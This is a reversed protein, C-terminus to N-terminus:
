LGTYEEVRDLWEGVLEHFLEAQEIGLFHGSRDLVVFTGRPYNELIEWADGYGAVSDQRGTIILTPAPCPKPLADVDFSFAYNEPHERIKAQFVQDGTEGASPFNARIYDVVKRSQVVAIQFLGEAEEPELESVLAPDAVLIVQSPVHRKADNAEILPVTLLLGDISASRHHVVGRALYAGASAGAVVFKQGPIVNDIFDLVVDLIKDQNTIWDKGPTRGHGPLDLYVRKWGDHQRFCPEMDSQMHHHDGGWGHLMIIPRGEGFVEYYVKINKLECDM